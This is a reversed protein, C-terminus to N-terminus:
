YNKKKSENSMIKNFETDLHFDFNLIHTFYKIINNHDGRCSGGGEDGAKQEKIASLKKKYNMRERKVIRLIAVTRLNIPPQM